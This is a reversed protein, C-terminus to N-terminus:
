SRPDNRPPTLARSFRRVHSFYLCANHAENNMFKLVDSAVFNIKFNILMEKELRSNATAIGDLHFNLTLVRFPPDFDRRCRGTYPQYRPSPARRRRYRALLKIYTEIFVTKRTATGSTM